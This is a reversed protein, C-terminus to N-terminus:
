HSIQRISCVEPEFLSTFKVVEKMELIPCWGSVKCSFNTNESSNSSLFLASSKETM